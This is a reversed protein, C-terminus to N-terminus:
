KFRLNYGSYHKLWNIKRDCIVDGNREWSVRASTPIDVTMGFSFTRGHKRYPAVPRYISFLPSLFEGRRLKVDSISHLEIIGATYCFSLLHRGRSIIHICVTGSFSGSACALV